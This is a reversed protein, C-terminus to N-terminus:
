DFETIAPKRRFINLYLRPYFANHGYLVTQVLPGVLKGVEPM